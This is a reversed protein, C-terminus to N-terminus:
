LRPIQWIQPLYRLFKQEFVHTRETAAEESGRAAAPPPAPVRPDSVDDTVLVVTSVGRPTELQEITHFSYTLLLRLDKSKEKRPALGVWVSEGTGKPPPM